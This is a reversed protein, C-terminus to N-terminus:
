HPPLILGDPFEQDQKIANLIHQAFCGYARTGQKGILVGVWSKQGGFEDTIWAGSDGEEAIQSVDGKRSMLEFIGGFCRWGPDGAGFDPTELENWISLANMRAEVRGSIKGTFTVNQFKQLRSISKVGHLGPTPVYSSDLLEAVAIDLRGAYPANDVDCVTNSVNLPSISSFRVDGIHKGGIDRSFVTTQNPGMVHACSLVYSKGTRPDLLRGGATGSTNPNRRGVSVVSPPQATKGVWPLIHEFLRTFASTAVAAPRLEYVIPYRDYSRPLHLERVQAFTEGRAESSYYPPEFSPPRSANRRQADKPYRLLVRIVIPAPSQLEESCYGISECHEQWYPPRYLWDLDFNGFTSMFQAWRLPNFDDTLYLLPIAGWYGSQKLVASRYWYSDVELLAGQILSQQIGTVLTKQLGGRIEDAIRLLHDFM